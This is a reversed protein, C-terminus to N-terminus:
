TLANKYYNSRSLDTLSRLDLTDNEFEFLKRDDENLINQNIKTDTQGDSSEQIQQNANKAKKNSNKQDIRPNQKMEIRVNM